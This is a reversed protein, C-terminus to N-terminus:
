PQRRPPLNRRWEPPTVASSNGLTRGQGEFAVFGTTDSELSGLMPPVLL